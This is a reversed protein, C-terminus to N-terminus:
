FKNPPSEESFKQMFSKGNALRTVNFKSVTMNSTLLRNEVPSEATGDFYRSM